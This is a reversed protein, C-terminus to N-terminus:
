QRYERAYRGPTVGIIRKFRRTLHSQSSYGVATATDALAMGRAILRQAHRIRITDLYAHPPLGVENRFVRLLYYPSLHVHEAVDSLTVRDSFREEIYRRARRVALREQGARQAVPRSEGHEALLHTLMWLFRSECELPDADESLARHLTGVERALEPHTLQVSSFYTAAQARGTLELLARQVHTATPYLARYEFGAEDAPQGTHVDGPNLLVLGGPLTIHKSGRFHFAQVGREILCVVYYEHSHPPYAHRSYFAHFLEVDLQAHHSLHSWEETPM